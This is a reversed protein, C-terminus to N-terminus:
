WASCNLLWHNGIIIVIVISNILWFIFLLDNASRPWSGFHEYVLSSVGSSLTSSYKHIILIFIVTFCTQSGLTVELICYVVVIVLCWRSHNSHCCMMVLWLISNVRQIFLPMLILSILWTTVITMMVLATRNIMIVIIILCRMLMLMSCFLLPKIFHICYIWFHLTKWGVLAHVTVLVFVRIVVFTRWIPEVLNEWGFVVRLLLVIEIWGRTLMWVEGVSKIVEAPGLIYFKLLLIITVRLALRGLCIMLLIHVSWMLFIISRIPLTIIFIIVLIYFCMVSTWTILVVWLLIILWVM